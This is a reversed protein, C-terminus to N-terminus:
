ARDGRAYSKVANSHYRSFRYTLLFRNVLADLSLSPSYEQGFRMKKVLAAILLSKKVSLPSKGCCKNYDRTLASLHTYGLDVALQKIRMKPNLRLMADGMAVRYARVYHCFTQGTGKKFLQRFYSPSLGLLTAFTRERLPKAFDRKIIDVVIKIRDDM